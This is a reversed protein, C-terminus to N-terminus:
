EKSGTETLALVDMWIGVCFYRTSVVPDWGIRCTGLGDGLGPFGVDRATSAPPFSVARWSYIYFLFSVGFPWGSGAVSASPQSHLPEKESGQHSERCHAQLQKQEPWRWNCSPKTEEPQVNRGDLIIGEQLKLLFVVEWFPCMREEPRRRQSGPHLLDAERQAWM